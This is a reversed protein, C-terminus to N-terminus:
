RIRVNDPMFYLRDHSSPASNHCEACFEVNKSNVGGSLGAITGDERIMMYRWDGDRANFGADMKEMLFLPGTLLAGQDTVTFSDKVIMAGPPLRGLKEYKVYARAADNAYNNVFREGHTTSRYPTKNYRKWTSYQTAIPDGSQAYDDGLRDRIAQYVEEARAGSLSAPNAITLHSNLPERATDSQAVTPQNPKHGAAADLWGLGSFVIIGAPAFLFSLWYKSSV